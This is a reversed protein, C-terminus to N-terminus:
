GAIIAAVSKKMVARGHVIESCDAIIVEKGIPALGVSHVDVIDDDAGGITGVLASRGVRDRKDIPVALHQVQLRQDVGRSGIIPKVGGRSDIVRALDGDIGDLDGRVLNAGHQQSWVPIGVGVGPRRCAWDSRLAM